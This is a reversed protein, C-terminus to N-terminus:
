ILHKIMNPNSLRTREALCVSHKYRLQSCCTCIFLPEESVDKYFKVVLDAVPDSKCQQMQPNQNERSCKYCKQKKSLRKQREEPTENLTVHARYQRFKWLRKDRVEPTQNQLIRSNQQKLKLLRLERQEPTENKLVSTYTTKVKVCDSLEKRPSENLYM